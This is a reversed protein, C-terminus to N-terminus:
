KEVKQMRDYLVISGAVAVNMSMAGPLQIIPQCFGLVGTPLGTDESGLIYVARKYRAGITFIFSAGMLQASRWLVGVNVPMKPAYIGIGCYGRMGM